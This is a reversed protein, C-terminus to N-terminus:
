QRVKVEEKLTSLEQRLSQNERDIEIVGQVIERKERQRKETIQVADVLAQYEMEHAKVAVELSNKAKSKVELDAAASKIILLKKDRLIANERKKFDVQKQVIKLDTELISTEQKLRPILSPYDINSEEMFQIKKLIEKETDNLVIIDRKLEDILRKTGHQKQNLLTKNEKIQLAIDSKQYELDALQLKRLSNMEDTDALTGEYFTEQSKKLLVDQNKDEIDRVLYDLNRAQRRRQRSNTLAADRIPSIDVKYRDLIKKLGERESLLLQRQSELKRNQEVLVKVDKKVEDLQMLQYATSQADVNSSLCFALGVIIFISKKGFM